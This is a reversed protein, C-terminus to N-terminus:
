DRYYIKCFSLDSLTVVLMKKNRLVKESKSWHKRQM